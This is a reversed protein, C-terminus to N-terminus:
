DSAPSQSTRPAPTGGTMPSRRRAHGRQLCFWLAAPALMGSASRRSHGFRCVASPRARSAAFTASLHPGVEVPLQTAADNNVVERTSELTTM